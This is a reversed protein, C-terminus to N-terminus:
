LIKEKYNIRCTVIEISINLSPLFHPNKKEKKLIVHNTLVMLLPSPDM